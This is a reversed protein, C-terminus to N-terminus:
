WGLGSGLQKVLCLIDRSKQVYLFLRYIRGFSVGLMFSVCKM